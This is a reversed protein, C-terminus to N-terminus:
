RVPNPIDVIVQGTDKRVFAARDLKAALVCEVSTLDSPSTATPAFRQTQCYVTNTGDYPTISGEVVFVLNQILERAAEPALKQPFSRYAKMFDGYRPPAVTYFTVTKRTIVFRAGLANQAEYPQGVLDPVGGFRFGVWHNFKAAGTPNGVIRPATSLTLVQKASDYAYAAGLAVDAPDSPEGERQIPFEMRFTAGPHLARSPGTDFADKPAHLRIVDLGDSLQQQTVTEAHACWAMAMAAAAILMTKM